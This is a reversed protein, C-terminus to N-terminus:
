VEGPAADGGPVDLKPADALLAAAPRPRELVDGGRDVVEGVDLLDVLRPDRGATVGRAPVERQPERSPMAQRAADAGRWAHARDGGDRLGADAVELARPAVIEAVAGDFSQEAREGLARVPERGCRG